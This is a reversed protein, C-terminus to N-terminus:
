HLQQPHVENPNQVPPPEIQALERKHGNYEVFVRMCHFTKCIKDVLDELASWLDEQPTNFIFAALLVYPGPYEIDDQRYTGGVDLHKIVIQNHNRVAWSTVVPGLESLVHNRGSPDLTPVQMAVFQIPLRQPVPLQKTGM